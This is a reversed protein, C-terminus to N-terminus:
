YLTVRFGVQKVGKTVDYTGRYNASNSANNFYDGGNGGILTGTGDNIINFTWESLNGALDYINQRCFLTNAGSTLATASVDEKTYPTTLWPESVEWSSNGTTTDLLYKAKKNTVYYINDKYNGWSVSSTTIDEKQVAMTTELYKMVLDWQLGFMLSTTYEGSEMNTALGQAQSTTVFNYPYANAKIVPTETPDSTSSRYRWSDAIGTEYRGIYFGGNQYISKLMNQKLATYNASSLGIATYSTYIDDRTNYTASYAKLDTEITSYEEETFETINLNTYVTTNKPVEIWVYENGSSDKIALGTELTTGAVRSFGTPLYPTTEETSPLTETETTGEPDSQYSNISLKISMATSTPNNKLYEGVIYGWKSDLEDNDGVWNATVTLYGQGGAEVQASYKIEVTFPFKTIDNTIVDKYIKENSEFVAPALAIYNESTSTEGEEIIEFNIGAITVAQVQHQIDVLTEGNNFIDIRVTKEDMTPYLTDFEVGIPNEKEQGNIKYVMDWSAVHINLETNLVKSYAFWAFTTMILSFIFLILTKPRIKRKSKRRWRLINM